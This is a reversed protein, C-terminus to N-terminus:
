TVFPFAILACLHCYSFDGGGMLPKAKNMITYNHMHKSIFTALNDKWQIVSSQMTLQVNQVTTSDDTITSDDTLQKIQTIM